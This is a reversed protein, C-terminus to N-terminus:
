DKLKNLLDVMRDILRNKNSEKKPHLYKGLRYNPLSDVSLLKNGEFVLIKVVMHDFQNVFGVYFDRYQSTYYKLYFKDHTQNYWLLLM